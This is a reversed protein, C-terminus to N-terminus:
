CSVNGTLFIFNGWFWGTHFAVFTSPYAQQWKKLTLLNAPQHSPIPHLQWVPSAEHSSPTQEKFKDNFSM